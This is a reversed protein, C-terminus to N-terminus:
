KIYKKEIYHLMRYLLLSLGHSRMYHDAGWIAYSYDFDEVVDALITVGDNPGFETLYSYQKISSQSVQSAICFGAVNITKFPLNKLRMKSYSHEDSLEKLTALSQGKLRLYISLVLFRFHNGLTKAVMPTGVTLGSISLWCKINKLRSHNQQCFLKFDASGKSLSVIVLPLSENDITEAIIASNEEISGLSRTKIIEYNLGLHEAVDQVLSGDSGMEKHEVYYFGPIIILKYQKLSTFIPKLSDVAQMLAKNKKENIVKQYLLATAYDCGENTSIAALGTRNFNENKLQKYNKATQLHLRYENTPASLFLKAM